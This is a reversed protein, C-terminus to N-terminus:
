RLTICLKGQAKGLHKLWWGGDFRKLTAVAEPSPLSTGISLVLQQDGDEPNTALELRPRTDPFYKEIQPRADSLLSLLFPHSALFQSVEGEHQIRYADRWERIPKPEPMQLKRAMTSMGKPM